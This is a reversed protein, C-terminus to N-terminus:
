CYVVIQRVALGGIVAPSPPAGGGEAAGIKMPNGITEKASRQIMSKSDM